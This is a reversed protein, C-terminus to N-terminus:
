LEQNQRKLEQMEYSVEELKSIIKEM